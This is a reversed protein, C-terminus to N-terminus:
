CVGSLEVSNAACVSISPLKSASVIIPIVYGVFKNVNLVPPSGGKIWSAAVGVSM